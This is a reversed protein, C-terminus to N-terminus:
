CGADVRWSVYASVALGGYSCTGKAESVEIRALRGYV